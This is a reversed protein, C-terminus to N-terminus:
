KIEKTKRMWKVAAEVVPDRGQLLAERTLKVEEHPIVGIGELPQGGESIYNAIAYQFGDGNPLREFVSPLAAGATRTGFIRARGLDKMGGAFVESNSGSLGDVLIALPGRYTELRPNVFFKLPAERTYMTGLRRNEKEIFWGAMGMSMGGIGGPNGRLDMIIGDCTMCSKVADEFEKMVTAPSLFINLIIYGINADLRRTEMWVYRAPMNGFRVRMGKPKGRTVEVGVPQNGGDLLELRVSDGVKGALKALIARTAMLERWTSHQYTEDISQLLPTLIAGDAKVLQWGPRIGRHRADSAEEVATVLAKGDIVRLDIGTSSENPDAGAKQDLDKYLDAPVINFHSQELRGLMTTLVARAKATSDAQEIQPRLEDRVRQWDVGGLKPDWHQDRVTTWVKDFSQINLERQQPTLTALAFLIPLLPM